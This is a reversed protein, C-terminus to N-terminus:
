RIPQTPISRLFRCIGGCEDDAPVRDDTERLDTDSVVASRKGSINQLGQRLKGSSAAPIGRRSYITADEVYKSHMAAVSASWSAFRRRVPTPPRQPRPM